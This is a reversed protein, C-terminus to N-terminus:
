QPQITQLQERRMIRLEKRRRITQSPAQLTQRLSPNQEAPFHYQKPNVRQIPYFVDERTQAFPRETM